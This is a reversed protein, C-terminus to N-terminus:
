IAPAQPNVKATRFEYQLIEVAASESDSRVVKGKAVLQLPCGNNLHAPWAVSLELRRGPLLGTSSEFLIGNSSMNITKGTGPEDPGKRSM